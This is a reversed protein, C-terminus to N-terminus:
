DLTVSQKLLECILGELVLKISRDMHTVLNNTRLAYLSIMPTKDDEVVKKKISMSGTKTAVPAKAEFVEGRLQKYLEDISISLSGSKLGKLKMSIMQDETLTILIERNDYKIASERTIEKDLKTAM